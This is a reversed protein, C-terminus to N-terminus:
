EGAGSISRGKQPRILDLTNNDREIDFTVLTNTSAIEPLERLVTTIFKGLADVDKEVVKLLMDWEGTIIATEIVQPYHSLKQAIAQQTREKKVYSVLVYAVVGLGLQKEDVEVTYRRIVSSELKKIRNFVSTPKIGTKKGMERLSMRGNSVLLRLLQIDKEDM